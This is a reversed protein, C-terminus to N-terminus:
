QEGEYEDYWWLNNRNRKESCDPYFGFVERYKERNTTKRSKVGYESDWWSECYKSQCIIDTTYAPCNVCDTTPCLSTDPDVGFVEKYKEKNTM